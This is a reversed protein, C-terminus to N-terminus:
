SLLTSIETAKLFELKKLEINQKQEVDEGWISAQWNEDLIAANWISEASMTNELAALGLIYSGSITVLKNFVTLQFSSMQTMQSVLSEISKPHQRIPIVGTTINLKIYFRNEAWSIFPDWILIQEDILEQPKEARYFLLDTDAYEELIKKTEFIQNRTQDIAANALRNAPMKTFDIEDKQQKWEDVLLNALKYNPLKLVTKKPTKLLHNDLYICYESADQKITVLNWFVKKISLSM